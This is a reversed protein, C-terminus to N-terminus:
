IISGFGSGTCHGIGVNWAFEIARTDGEIIVPCMNALNVINNIHVLKTKPKVFKRDFKIQIDYNLDAIKLKTKMIETLYFDAEPNDYLLPIAKNNEDYKRIFIPSAAVFRQPNTFNPTSQILIENIIMGFFLEPQALAGNILKKALEEDWINVNWESGHEFNFGKNPIMRCGQLWSLSYLSISNHINNWGMMKHFAGVLHHQYNFPVISKNKSLIFKLRM